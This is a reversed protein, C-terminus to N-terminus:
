NQSRYVVKGTGSREKIIAKGKGYNVIDGNGNMEVNFDTDTKITVDGNGTKFINVKKSAINKTELNGNGNNNIEIFDVFSGILSLNGNGSNKIEVYRGIFKKISVDANSSNYLKSIEPMVIKIKVPKQDKWNAVYKADLVIMLKNETKTVQVQQQANDNGSVTIAYQKGLELEIEGNINEIQVNDFDKFAYNETNNQAKAIQALFFLILIIISTKIKKM